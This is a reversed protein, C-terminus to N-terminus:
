LNEEIFDAIQEFSHKSQGAAGDNMNMLDNRAWRNIGCYGPPTQHIDRYIPSSNDRYADIPDDIDRPFSYSYIPGDDTEEQVDSPVGNIEALVGLCCNCEGTRLAGKGQKYKGSRLAEIWRAKVEPDMKQYDTM